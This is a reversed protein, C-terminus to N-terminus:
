MLAGYRYQGLTTASVLMWLACFWWVLFSSLAKVLLPPLLVGETLEPCVVGQTLGRWVV